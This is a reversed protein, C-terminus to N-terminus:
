AGIVLAAALALPFVFIWKNRPGNVDFQRPAVVILPPADSENGQATRGNDATRIKRGRAWADFEMPFAYVSGIREHVHRHVPMAERKEWRQVTTVGRNLRAATEKWSDLRDELPSTSQQTGRIPEGM